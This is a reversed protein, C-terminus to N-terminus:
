IFRLSKVFASLIIAVEQRQKELKDYCDENIFDIKLIVELLYETEVLSRNSINLFNLFDKRSNSAHGEAINLPVSFAARRLQSTIGFLEERPFSKSINFIEIALADAKEWIKLKRYGKKNKEM